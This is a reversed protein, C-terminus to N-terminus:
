SRKIPTVLKKFFKVGREGDLLLKTMKERISTTMAITEEVTGLSRLYHITVQHMRSVRHIRDEVQEQEDPIFTEDVLILDDASDLTLAVGGAMTNLLFVRPGDEGNQWTKAAEVRTKTNVKGTIKLCKIGKKTLERDYLDILSTFQSAIVVKRYEPNGDEDYEVTPNKTIGLSELFEVIWDFKNSPLLPKFRVAEDGESDLYTEIDGYSSAFQKMRVLEALRGNAALIGSELRTEAEAVIEAYAKAQKPHMELWHGVPSTEDVRGFEDPLPTGAYLKDPLEARVEKKTRRLIYPQIDRYFEGSKSEDLTDIVSKGDDLEVFTFWREVWDWYSSYLEPYLWNLTGWLNEVKGRMPTGSMAIKLGGEELPLMGMGARILTQDQPISTKTILGRHSEDVVITAWADYEVIVERTKKVTEGDVQEEYEEKITFSGFLEPYKYDWWGPVPFERKRPDTGNRKNPGTKPYRVETSPKVWETRAMELNVIFWRRKATPEVDLAAHLMQKRRKGDGNVVVVEDEPLWMALEDPWTIAVAATPALVLIDGTIGAEVVAGFCQLTNHTAVYHKTLYLHDGAEVSICQAEEFVGTGEISVISRSPEYKSRPVWRKLKRPLRFPTVGSPLSLVMRYFLQGELREGKSTYTPIKEQISVTGGLSQVLERVQVSLTKSVTGYEITTGAKGDRGSVTTGDTDLLGQLLAIRDESSGRLYVSPISKDESKCGMMGLPRLHKALGNLRYTGTYAGIEETQVVRVDDPLTLGFNRICRDTTLFASHGSLGGDGLLLGILYPDLPLDVPNFEVPSTMPISFRKRTGREIYLGMEKLERATKTWGVLGANRHDKTKVQWLHDWDCRVVSGDSFTVEVVEREGQPFVGSVRTPRGNSGIVLSGVELDGMKVWGAPTLVPESVPQAKGLGPQDFLGFRRTTAGFVIGARQYAHAMRAIKPAEEVTHASLVADSSSSALNDLSNLREVEAFFWDELRETPDFLDGALHELARLNTTSAPLRWEDNKRRGLKAGLASLKQDFAKGRERTWPHWVSIQGPDKPDQTLDAFVFGASWSAHAAQQIPDDFVLSPM